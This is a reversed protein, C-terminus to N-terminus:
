VGYQQTATDIFTPLHHPQFADAIGTFLTSLLLGADVVEGIVPIASSIGEGIATGTEEGVAKGALSGVAKGLAQGGEVVAQTDGSALAGAVSKGATFAEKAQGAIDAL